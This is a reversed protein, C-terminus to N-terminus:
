IPIKGIKGSWHFQPENQQLHIKPQNNEQFRTEMQLSGTSLHLGLGRPFFLHLSLHYCPLPIIVQLNHIFTWNFCVNSHTKYKSFSLFIKIQPLRRSNIFGVVAVVCFPFWHKWKQLFYIMHKSMKIWEQAEWPLCVWFFYRSLNIM